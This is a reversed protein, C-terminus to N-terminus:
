MVGLLEYKIKNRPTEQYFELENDYTIWGTLWENPKDIKKISYCDTYVRYIKGIKGVAQEKDERMHTENNHGELDSVRTLIVKDGEKFRM